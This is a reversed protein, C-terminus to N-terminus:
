IHILSLEDAVLLEAAIAAAQARAGSLEAHAAASASDREQEAPANVPASAEVEACQAGAAGRRGRQGGAAQAEALQAHTRALLEKASAFQSKWHAAAKRLKDLQAPLAAGGEGGDGGDAHAGRMSPLSPPSPHLGQEALAVRHAAVEVALQALASAHQAAADAMTPKAAVGDDGSTGSDRICMESGM